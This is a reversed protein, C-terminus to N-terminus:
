AERCLENLKIDADARAIEGCDLLIGESGYSLFVAIQNRDKTPVMSSTGLFTIQM